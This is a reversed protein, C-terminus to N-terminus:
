ANARITAVPYTLATEALVETVGVATDASLPQASIRSLRGEVEDHRGWESRLLIGERLCLISQKSHPWAADLLSLAEDREGLKQHLLRAASLIDDHQWHIDVARRFAARALDPEDLKQWLDGATEHVGQKEFEDAAERWLGGDALCRAAELPQNLKDRYIVAAERFFRGQKLAGIASQLDGLLKAYVYAARRHRGLQLERLALRRYHAVLQQQLDPPINWFDAAGSGHLSNLDFETSNRQLDAGPRALGRHADGGFPIAFRLGEDPNSNLMEVLRELERRRKDELAPLPPLLRALGEAFQGLGPINHGLWEFPRAALELPASLWSPISISGPGGSPSDLPEVIPKTGIEGGGTNLVEDATTSWTPIVGRLRANFAIGPVAGSWSQISEAPAQLLDSIRLANQPDFGILGVSPHWILCGEQPLLVPWEDAAVDPEVRAEVPLYLKGAICGYPRCLVSMSLAAGAPPLLLAASATRDRRSTPLVYLTCRSAPLGADLLTRIWVAPRSDSILWAVPERLAADTYRLRLPVTNM